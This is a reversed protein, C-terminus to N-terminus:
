LSRVKKLLEAPKGKSFHLRFPELLENMGDAVAKKLDLPHVRGDLYAQSLEAYDFFEITGGYNAARKITLKGAIPFIAYKCYEMVPNDQVINQPCYAKKLKREVEAPADDMFVASDPKSKSMKMAFAKELGSLKEADKSPPLLGLVMHHHVAVPKEWGLKPAIERALINVKRQDMGLQCIDVNLHFIDACQMAPYFLHATKTVQEESRGMIQTCRTMRPVTTEKAVQVVKKWYESDMSKSAWLFEVEDTKMGCAKWVEIFYEGLTHIKDLDGGMKDNIWAFWDAVWFKFKIGTKLLTNVNNARMLGQAIHIRGSPEFGDYAVPHAKKEFLERLEHETIVEEAISSVLRVKEETDM